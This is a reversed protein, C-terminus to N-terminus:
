REGWQLTFGGIVRLANDYYNEEGDAFYIMSRFDAAFRVGVKETLYVTAGVGPQIAFRTEGYVRTRGREAPWGTEETHLRGIFNEWLPSPRPPPRIGGEGRNELGQLGSWYDVDTTQRMWLLYFPQQLQTIDSFTEVISTRCRIPSM